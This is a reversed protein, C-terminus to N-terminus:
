AMITKDIAPFEVLGVSEGRNIGLLRQFDGTAVFRGAAHRFGPPDEGLEAFNVRRRRLGLAELLEGSQHGVGVVSAEGAGDDVPQPVAQHAATDHMRHIGHVSFRPVFVQQIIERHTEGIINVIQFFRESM